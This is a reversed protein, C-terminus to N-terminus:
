SNQVQEETKYFKEEKVLFDYNDGMEKQAQPDSFGFMGSAGFCGVNSQNFARAKGRRVPTLQGFICVFNKNTKPADPYEVDDLVDAYFSAIPLESGPFYKGWKEIFRKKIEPEM